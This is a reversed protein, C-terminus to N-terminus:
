TKAMTVTKGLKSFELDGTETYIIAGLPELIDNGILIPVNGDIVYFKAAVKVGKIDLPLEIRLRSDYM